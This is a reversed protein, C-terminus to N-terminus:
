KCVNYFYNFRKKFLLRILLFFVIILIIISIILNKHIYGNKLFYLINSNNFRLNFLRKKGKLDFFNSGIFNSDTIKIKSNIGNIISVGYNLKFLCNSIFAKGKIINFAVPKNRLFKTKIINTSSDDNLISSGNIIINDSFYSNKIKMFSGFNNGIIFDNMQNNIFIGKNIDIFSKDGRTDILSAGINNKFICPHNIFFSGGPIYFLPMDPSYNNIIESENFTVSANESAAFFIGMNNSITNNTFNFECTGDCLLIEPHKNYEFTCNWFGFCSRFDFKHLPSYPSSNYRITTNTYECVSNVAFLLPEKSKHLINNNEIITMNLYLHTSFMSILSTNYVSNEAIYCDEMKCKGVGFCLLGFGGIIHNKVFSCNSFVGREVTRFCSITSHFGTFYFGHIRSDIADQVVIFSISKEIYNTGNVIMNKSVFTAGKSLGYNFLDKLSELEDSNCIEKDKMFVIDGKEIQKKAYKFSCPSLIHCVNSDTGNIKTYIENCLSHCGFIILIM